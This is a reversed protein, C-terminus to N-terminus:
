IKKFELNNILFIFEGGAIVVKTILKWIKMWNKEPRCNMHENNINYAM